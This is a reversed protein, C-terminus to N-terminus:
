NQYNMRRKICTFMATLKSTEKLVLKNEENMELIYGAESAWTELKEFKEHPITILDNNYIAIIKKIAEITKM